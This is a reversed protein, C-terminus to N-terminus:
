SIHLKSVTTEKVAGGFCCSICRRKFHDLDWTALLPQKVELKLVTTSLTWPMLQLSTRLVVVSAEVSLIEPTKHKNALESKHIRM